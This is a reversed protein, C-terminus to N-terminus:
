GLESHCGMLQASYSYFLYCSLLSSACHYSSRLDLDMLLCIQLFITKVIIKLNKIINRDTKESVKRKIIVRVSYDRMLSLSGTTSAIAQVTASAVSQLHYEPYCHYHIQLKRWHFHYQLSIYVNKPRFKFSNRAKKRWINM